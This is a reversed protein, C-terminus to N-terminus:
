KMSKLAKAMDKLGSGSAIKKWGEGIDAALVDGGHYIQAFESLVNYLRGGRRMKAVIAYREGNRYLVSDGLAAGYAHCLADDLANFDSFVFTEVSKESSCEALRKDLSRLLSLLEDNAAIEPDDAKKVRVGKKFESRTMKRKKSMGIKSINLQMGENSQVAEVVVQGNKYPDFGTETQVIEMLEFLFRHLDGSQPIPSAEDFEVDFFELDQKTLYVLVERSSVM